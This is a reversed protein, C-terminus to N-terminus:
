VINLLSDLESITFSEEAVPVELIINGLMTNKALRRTFDAIAKESYPQVTKSWGDKFVYTYLRASKVMFPEGADVAKKWYDMKGAAVRENEKM